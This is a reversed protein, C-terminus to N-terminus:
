ICYNVLRRAEMGIADEFNQIGDLVEQSTYVNTATCETCVINKAWTSGDKLTITIEDKGEEVDWSLIDGATTELILGKDPMVDISLTKRHYIMGGDESAFAIDVVKSAVESPVFPLTALTLTLENTSVSVPQEHKTMLSRGEVKTDKSVDVIGYTLGTIGVVLLVSLGAAFFMGKRLLSNTSKTQLYLNAAELLEFSDIVGNGDQDFAKSLPDQVEKPFSSIAITKNEM